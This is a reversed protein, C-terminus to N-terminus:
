SKTNKLLSHNARQTLFIFLFVPILQFISRSQQIRLANEIDQDSIKRRERGSTQSLRHGEALVEKWSSSGSRIACSQHRGFKEAPMATKSALPMEPPAKNRRCHHPSKDSQLASCTSRAAISGTGMHRMLICLTLLVDKKPPDRTEVRYRWRICLLTRPQIGRAPTVEPDNQKTFHM